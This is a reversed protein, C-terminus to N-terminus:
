VSNANTITMVPPRPEIGPASSPPMSIPMVSASPPRSNAGDALLMNVKAMRTSTSSNRGWPRSPLFREHGGIQQSANRGTRLERQPRKKAHKQKKREDGVVIEDRHEDQDEVEGVNSLCPVDHHTEGALEREPM